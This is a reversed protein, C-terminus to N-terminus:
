YTNIFSINDNTTIALLSLQSRERLLLINPHLWGASKVHFIDVQPDMIPVVAGRSTSAM